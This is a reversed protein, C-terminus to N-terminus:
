IVRRSLVRNHGWGILHWRPDKAHGKLDKIMLGQQWTEVGMRVMAGDISFELWGSM